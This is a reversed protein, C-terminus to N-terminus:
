HTGLECAVVFAVVPEEGGGVVVVSVQEDNASKLPLARETSAGIAAGGTWTMDDGDSEVAQPSFSSRRNTRRSLLSERM